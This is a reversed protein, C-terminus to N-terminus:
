HQNVRIIKKQLQKLLSEYDSPNSMFDIFFDLGAESLIPETALDYHFAWYSSKQMQDWIELQLPSYLSDNINRFPSFAGSKSNLAINVEPVSMLKLIEISDEKNKAERSLLIGDMTGLAVFELDDNMQPFPFFGYEEESSEERLYQLIWTGMLTMAADGKMMKEAAGDWSLDLFDRNFYGRDIMNKWIDMTKLVELDTYHAKKEMLDQRYDYGATHLLIYDFWFQSPWRNKSGLSFPITDNTKLIEAISILEEWTEPPSLKHKEFLAKNYFFGVFHKTLPFLYMEGKYSCIDIISQDFLERGAVNSVLRTIASVKEKEILYETRAGAWYSFLDPPNDTELQIRINSKFEEHELPTSVLHISKSQKNIKETFEKFGSAFNGTFYHLLMVPESEKEASGCGFIFLSILLLSIGKLPSFNYHVAGRFGTYKYM